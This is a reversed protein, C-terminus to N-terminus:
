VFGEGKDIWKPPCQMADWRRVMAAPGVRHKSHNRAVDTSDVSAFPYEWKVCQLGRLMHIWPVRRHRRSVEAFVQDMRMRWSPSGVTAFDASSGICVKPWEDLLRLLRAVPEHMHWVPAGRDGHPWQSLLADQVKEGGEIDDPIVAWTTPYDLWKDTWAYYKDWDTKKGTRWKSFAGNDLMVSQGFQHARACDTPHAHSICYHRGTVQMFATIPSIPTGHYHITM